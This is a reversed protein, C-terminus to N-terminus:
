YREYGYIKQLISQLKKKAYHLQSKSTGESIKLMISIERHSYGEVEYLVFVSRYGEDLMLIAKHLEDGSIESDFEVPEQLNISIEEFRLKKLKRIARRVMITKIWAGLSSEARFANICRFVEIFGEQLADKADDYNGCIRFCVSYMADKYLDYIQKQSDRDDKLCGDILIQLNPVEM